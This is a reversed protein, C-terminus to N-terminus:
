NGPPPVAARDGYGVSDALSVALNVTYPIHMSITIEIQCTMQGGPSLKSMVMQANGDTIFLPSGQMMIVIDIEVVKIQM